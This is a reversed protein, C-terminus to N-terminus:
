GAARERLQFVNGEPDHGDCHRWGNFAWEAQAPKLAGGSAAALERAAALSVVPFIFKLATNERVTPPHDIHANAAVGPNMAVIFLQLAASELSAHGAESHTVALGAVGAYFASVRAVDKAYIVAAAQGTM